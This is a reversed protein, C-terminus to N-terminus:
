RVITDVSLVGDVRTREGAVITVRQSLSGLRWFWFLLDYEGPPMDFFDYSSGSRIRQSQLGERSLVAVSLREDEDTTLELDGVLEVTMDATAGPALSPLDQIDDGDIDALFFTLPISSNNEIRIVDGKAVALAPPALGGDNEAEVAHVRGPEAAPNLLIAYVDIRRYNVMTDNYSIRGDASTAYKGDSSSPANRAMEKAKKRYEKHPRATVDGYVSGTGEALRPVKPADSHDAALAAVPM